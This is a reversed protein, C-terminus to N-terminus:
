GVMAVALDLMEDGSANEAGGVGAAASVVNERRSSGARGKRVLWCGERREMTEGGESSVLVAWVGHAVM